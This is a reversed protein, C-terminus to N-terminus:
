VAAKLPLTKHPKYLTIIRIRVVEPACVLCYDHACVFAANCWITEFSFIPQVCGSVANFAADLLYTRNCGEEQLKLDAAPM